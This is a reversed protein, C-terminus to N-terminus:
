ESDEERRGPAHIEDHEEKLDHELKVLVRTIRLHEVEEVFFSNGEYSVKQGIRPPTEVQAYLWGGLTDVNEAQINIELIDNVEELMLKADVSFLRNGKREVTPREHDFEDQIDGVIEEVVDEITVMGATGGYEDVVVALQVKKQQMTQLLRPVSMPEPVFLTRRALRRLNPRRGHCLPDLLDKIHLFGIIDDKGERCIPYRTLRKKLAVQINEEVTNELFLCVMDTRPVMIDRVSKDSFDFVNDVFDYETKDIAGHKRSEAMLIRLEEESHVDEKEPTPEFGLARTVFNAVHNLLWVFPYTIKKFILLPIALFLLANLAKQIAINKPALEGLIIHAATIISFAVTFSITEAAACTISVAEFLPQLLRSLFPEGVWGLGLSVLTIGLQTVSLSVDM